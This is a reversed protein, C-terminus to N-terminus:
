IVKYNEKPTLDEVNVGPLDRAAQRARIIVPDIIVKFVEERVYSNTFGAMRDWTETGYRYKLGVSHIKTAEGTVMDLLNLVLVDQKDDRTTYIEWRYLTEPLKPLRSEIIVSVNWWHKDTHIKYGYEPEKTKTKESRIKYERFLYLAIMFAFGITLAITM